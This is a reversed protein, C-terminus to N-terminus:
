GRNRGARRGSGKGKGKGLPRSDTGSSKAKRAFGRFAEFKQLTRPSHDHCYLCPQGTKEFIGTCGKRTCPTGNRSSCGPQVCAPDKCPTWDLNMRALMEPSLLKPDQGRSLEYSGRFLEPDPDEGCTTFEVLKPGCDRICHDLAQWYAVKSTPERDDALQTGLRGGELCFNTQSKSDAILEGTERIIASAGGWRGTTFKAIFGWSLVDEFSVVTVPVLLEEGDHQRFQDFLRLAALTRNMLTFVRGMHCHVKLRGLDEVKVTGDLLSAVVGRIPRGDSFCESISSHYFGISNPNLRAMTGAKKSEQGGCAELSLPSHVTARDPKTSTQPNGAGMVTASHCSTTSAVETLYLSDKFPLGRKLYELASQFSSAADTKNLITAALMVQSSLKELRRIVSVFTGPDLGREKSLAEVFTGGALWHLVAGEFGKQQKVVNQLQSQVGHSIFVDDLAAAVNSAKRKLAELWEEGRKKHQQQEEEEEEEEEKLAIRSAGAPPATLFRSLFALVQVPKADALVDDCILTCLLLEDGRSFTCAARGKDSLEFDDSVFGLVHLSKLKPMLEDTLSSHQSASQTQFQRFTQRVFWQLYGLQGFRLLNLIMGCSLSFASLIAEPPKLVVKAFSGEDVKRSFCIVVSGKADKGRRGARGSIQTYESPLLHRKDSGDWKFLERGKKFSLVVCCVPLNLGLGCTETCFLAVLLGDNLLLESLERLCPLVGAHHVAIGYPLLSTTFLCVQPLRRDAESLSCLARDARKKIQLRQEESLLVPPATKWLLQEFQRGLSLKEQPGLFAKICALIQAKRDSFCEHVFASAHANCEQKSFSFVLSPVVRQRVLQEKLVTWAGDSSGEASKPAVLKQLTQYNDKQFIHQEDLVLRREGGAVRVFHQLPVPRPTSCIAHCPIHRTQAIWGAIDLINPATASLCIVLAQPPLLILTEEWVVGRRHDGLFHVEDYIVVSLNALSKPDQCLISRLVETTVVRVQTDTPTADDGTSLGVSGPFKRALEAFKQNSLAKAPSCFVVLKGKELAKIIAYEAVLTKGASTPASLVLCEALNIVGFARKQFEDLEHKLNLTYPGDFSCAAHHNSRKPRVRYHVLDSTELCTDISVLARLDADPTDPWRLQDLFVHSGKDSSLMAAADRFSCQLMAARGSNLNSGLNRCKDLPDEISISKSKSAGLESVEADGATTRLGRRVSVVEKAWDYTLTYFCFFGKVLSLLSQGSGHNPPPMCQGHATHASAFGVDFQRGQESFLDSSHPLAQLSPLPFVGDGGEDITQLYFIVLLTLAYSSLNGRAAGSVGRTKAYRKIVLVLARCRPDLKGYAHLLRANHVALRNNATVDVLRDSHTDLLCLVPVRAQWVYQKVRLQRGKIPTSVLAKHMKRFLADPESYAGCDVAIDIDASREGFGNSSSGFLDVHLGPSGPALSLAKKATAAVLDCVERTTSAGRAEPEVSRVFDWLAAEIAEHKTLAM